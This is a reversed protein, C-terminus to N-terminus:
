ENPRLLLFEVRRNQSRAEESVGEVAPDEEGLSVTEIRSAAVGGAILDDKVAMARRRGLALNYEAEGREDTHGEIRVRLKNNEILWSTAKDMTARQDARIAYNDFDFYVTPLASTDVGMGTLSEDGITEDVKADFQGDGKEKDAAAKRAAEAKKLAERLAAEALEKANVARAKAVDYNKAENEEYAQQLAGEAAGLTEAAFKAAGADKARQIAAEAAAIEELPPKACGAFVVGTMLVVMCVHLLRKLKKSKMSERPKNFIM